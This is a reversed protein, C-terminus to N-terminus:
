AGKHLRESSPRASVPPKLRHICVRVCIVYRSPDPRGSAANGVQSTPPSGYPPGGARTNDGHSASLSDNTSWSYALTQIRPVVINRVEFTGGLSTYDKPSTRAPYIEGAIVVQSLGVGNDGSVAQRDRLPAVRRWWRLGMRDYTRMCGTRLGQKSQLSHLSYM